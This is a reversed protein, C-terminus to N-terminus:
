NLFDKIALFHWDADSSKPLQLTIVIVFIITIVMVFVIIMIFSDSVNGSNGFYSVTVCPAFMRFFPASPRAQPLTTVFM